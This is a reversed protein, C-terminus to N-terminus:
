NSREEVTVSIGVEKLMDRYRYFTARSVSGRAAELGGRQIRNLFVALKWGYSEGYREILLARYPHEKVLLKRLDDLASKEALLRDDVSMLEDLSYIVEKTHRYNSHDVIYVLTHTQNKFRRQRKWVFDVAEDFDGFKLLPKDGARKCLRYRSNDGVAYGEHWWSPSGIPQIEPPCLRSPALVTGGDVPFVQVEYRSSVKYGDVYIVIHGLM